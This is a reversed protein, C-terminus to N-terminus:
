HSNIALRKGSVERFGALGTLFLVQHSSRRDRIFYRLGLNLAPNPAVRWHDQVFVSVSSRWTIKRVANGVLLFGRSLNIELSSTKWRFPNPSKLPQKARSISDGRGNDYSAEDVEIHAFEGNLQFTHKGRL